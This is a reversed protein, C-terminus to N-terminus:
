FHWFASCCCVRRRCKASSSNFVAAGTWFQQSLYCWCCDLPLLLVRPMACPAFESSVVFICDAALCRPCYTYTTEPPPRRCDPLAGSIFESVDELRVKIRKEVGLSLLAVLDAFNSKSRCYHIDRSRCKNAVCECVSECEAIDPPPPARRPAAAIAALASSISLALALAGSRREGFGYWTLACTGRMFVCAAGECVESTSKPRSRLVAKQKGRADFFIRRPRLIQARPPVRSQSKRM